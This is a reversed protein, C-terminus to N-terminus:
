VLGAGPCLRRRDRDVFWMEETFHFDNNSLHVYDILTVNRERQAASDYVTWHGRLAHLYDENGELTAPLLRLRRV